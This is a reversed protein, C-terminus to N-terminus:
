MGNMILLSNMKMTSTTGHLLCKLVIIILIAVLLRRVTVSPVGSGKVITLGLTRSRAWAFCHTTICGVRSMVHWTTPKDHSLYWQVGCCETSLRTACLGRHIPRLTRTVYLPSTRTSCHTSTHEMECISSRPLRAYVRARNCAYTEWGRLWRLFQLTNWPASPLRKELNGSRRLQKRLQVLLTGNDGVPKCVDQEPLLM